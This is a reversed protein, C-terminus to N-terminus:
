AFVMNSFGVSSEDFPQSSGTEYDDSDGASTLQAHPHLGATGQARGRAIGVVQSTVNAAAATTFTGNNAAPGANTTYAAIDTAADAKRRVKTANPTV